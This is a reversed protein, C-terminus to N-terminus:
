DETPLMITIVPEGNDGGSVVAKLQILKAKKSKGDRPVVSLNYIFSCSDPRSAINFRLMSIVDWLRGETDQYTQKQSDIDNWTIFTEWVSDTVAVPIVFRAERAMHSVDVLVGDALAQARSYTHIPDGFIENLTNM